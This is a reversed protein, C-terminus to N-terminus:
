ACKLYDLKGDLAPPLTAIRSALEANLAALLLRLQASQKASWVESELAGVIKGRTHLLCPTEFDAYLSSAGLLFMTM